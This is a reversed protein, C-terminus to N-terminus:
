TQVGHMRRRRLEAKRQERAARVDTVSPQEEALAETGARIRATQRQYLKLLKDHADLWELEHARVLRELSAQREEVDRFKAILRGADRLSTWLSM